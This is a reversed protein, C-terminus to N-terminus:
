NAKRKSLEKRRYERRREMREARLNEGPIQTEPETTLGATILQALGRITLKEYISVIPIEVSFQKRVDAIVRLATLSDGGLEFFNDEVGVERIGLAQQCLEAITKEVATGPPAYANKLPPRDHLLQAQSSAHPQGLGPTAIEHGNGNQPSIGAATRAPVAMESAEPEPEIWYRQREFPYTPLAVRRRGDGAHFRNWNIMAGALWLQGLVQGMGSDQTEPVCFSNLFVRAVPGRAQQRAVRILAQGPGTELFIRQPDQLLESMGQAFRVTHRLQGVWYEVQTAEEPMIWRGTLNSIYRRQPAQLEVKEVEARFRELMPEMMESHFAHSTKLRRYSIGDRALREELEGVAERRGSLVCQQPGNVAALALGGEALAAAESEEVGVAVMAGREMEQMLRGRRAVLRLGEEVTFVGAVCAAVYEGLSHGMMAEPEVGWSMWTQALAYEVAFLAPQVLWTEEWRQGEPGDDAQSGCLLERVDLNLEGRLIEACRDLEQRYIKEEEYLSRGMGAYQSGQGPFLFVVPRDQREQEGSFVKGRAKQELAAMGEAVSHCLVFRRQAFSKRGTQLTYAVDGLELEPHQRLHAVLNETARELAQSSRASLLLLQQRRASGEGGVEPAEELIVHANTGGVGFASVAARRPHGASKWEKLESNVYFPTEELMMEPNPQVFHL